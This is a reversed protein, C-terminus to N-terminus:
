PAPQAATPEAATQTTAAETGANLHEGGNGTALDWSTVQTAHKTAAL